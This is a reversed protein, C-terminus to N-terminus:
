FFVYIDIIFTVYINTFLLYNYNYLSAICLKRTWFIWCTASNGWVIFELVCNGELNSAHALACPQHVLAPEISLRIVRGDFHSSTSVSPASTPVATFSFIEWAGAADSTNFSGFPDHTTHHNTLFTLNAISAHEYYM